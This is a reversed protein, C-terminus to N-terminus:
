PTTAGPGEPGSCPNDAGVIRWPRAQGPGGRGKGRTWPRPHGACPRAHRTTLTPALRPTDATMAQSLRLANACPLPLAVFRNLKTHPTGDDRACRVSGAKHKVERHIAESRQCHRPLLLALETHKFNWADHGPSAVFSQKARVDRGDVDKTAPGLVHIGPGLGPM